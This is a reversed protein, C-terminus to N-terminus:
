YLFFFFLIVKNIAAKAWVVAPVSLIYGIHLLVSMQIFLVGESVSISFAKKSVYKRILNILKILYTQM